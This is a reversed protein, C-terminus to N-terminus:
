QNGGGMAAGGDPRVATVDISAPPGVGGVGGALESMSQRLSVADLRVASFSRRAKDGGGVSSLSEVGGPWAFSRRAVSGGDGLSAHEALAPPPLARGASVAAPVTQHEHGSDGGGAGDADLTPRSAAATGPTPSEDAAGVGRGGDDGYDGSSSYGGGGGGGGYGGVGYGSGGYSGGYGGGGGGELRRTDTTSRNRTHAASRLSHNLAAAHHSISEASLQRRVPQGPPPPLPPLLEGGGGDEGGGARRPHEARWGGAAAASAAAAAGGLQISRQLQQVDNAPTSFYELLACAIKYQRAAAQLEVRIDTAAVEDRRALVGGWIKALNSATMLNTRSHAAIGVLHKCTVRLRQYWERPLASLIAPLMAPTADSLADFLRYSTLPEHQRLCGKISAAWEPLGLEDFRVGGGGGGGGGGALFAVGRRVDTALGSVRYVGETSAAGVGEVHRIAAAVRLWAGEPLPPFYPPPPSPPAAGGDGGRPAVASGSSSSAGNGM